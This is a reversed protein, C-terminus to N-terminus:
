PVYIRMGSNRDPHDIIIFFETKNKGFRQIIGTVNDTGPIKMMAALGDIGILRVFLNAENVIVMPGYHMLVLVTSLLDAIIFFLVFAIVAVLTDSRIEPYEM